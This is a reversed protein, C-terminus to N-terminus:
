DSRAAGLCLRLEIDGALQWHKWVRLVMLYIPSRQDGTRTGFLPRTTYRPASNWEAAGGGSGATAVSISSSSYWGSTGPWGVAVPSIGGGSGGGFGIRRGGPRLGAARPPLFRLCRRLAPPPHLHRLSKTYGVAGHAPWSTLRSWLLSFFISAVPPRGNCEGTCRRASRHRTSGPDTVSPTVMDAILPSLARNWRWRFCLSAFLSRLLTNRFLNVADAGLRGDPRSRYHRAVWM